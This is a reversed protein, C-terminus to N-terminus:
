LYHLRAHRTLFHNRDETLGRDGVVPGLVPLRLRLVIRRDLNQMLIIAIRVPLVVQKHAHCIALDLADIKLLPAIEAPVRDHERADELEKKKAQRDKESAQSDEHIQESAFDKVPAKVEIKKRRYPAFDQHRALEQSSQEGSGRNENGAFQQLRDREEPMKRRVHPVNVEIVIMTQFM